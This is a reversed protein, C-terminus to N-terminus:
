FDRHCIRWFFHWTRFIPESLAEAPYERVFRLDRKLRQINKKIATTAKRNNEDFQGLNGGRLIEGLLVKGREEDMPAILYEEELGLKEHLVWMVAEAIKGLGLYRLAKYVDEKKGREDSRLLYYYDIIHKLGIGSQLVHGYIHALQFVANFEWTPIAIDTDTEPLRIYHAFQEELKFAIWKQMRANHIMNNMFRPRHHVEVETGNYTGGDIHNYHLFGTPYKKRLFKLVLKERDKESLSKDNPTIWLDIDGPTRAYLNPYLLTNGQGKLLCSDFGEEKFMAVLAVANKNILRNQGEIQETTAIWEMLMEFPPRTGDADMARITEFVIGAVSQKLSLDFVQQWEKETPKHSFPKKSGLAIQVLEFFLKEINSVGVTKRM